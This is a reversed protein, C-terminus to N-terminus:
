EPGVFLSFVTAFVNRVFLEAVRRFLPRAIGVCLLDALITILISGVLHISLQIYIHQHISLSGSSSSLAKTMM